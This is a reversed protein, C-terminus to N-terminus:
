RNIFKSTKTISTNKNLGKLTEIDKNLIELATDIGSAKSLIKDLADDVDNPKIKKRGTNQLEDLTQIVLMAILYKSNEQFRSLAIEGAQVGLLNDFEAIDKIMKKLRNTYLLNAEEEEIEDDLLNLVDNDVDKYNINTTDNLDLKLQGM